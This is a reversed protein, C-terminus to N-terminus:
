SVPAKNKKKKHDQKTVAVIEVPFVLLSERRLPLELALNVHVDVVSHQCVEALRPPLEPLVAVGVCLLEDYLPANGCNQGM